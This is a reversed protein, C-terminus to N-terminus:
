GRAPTTSAERGAPLLQKRRRGEVLEAVRDARLRGQGPRGRLPLMEDPPRYLAGAVAPVAVTLAAAPDTLAETVIVSAAGDAQHFNSSPLPVVALSLEPM